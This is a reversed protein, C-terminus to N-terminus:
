TSGTVLLLSSALWAQRGVVGSGALEARGSEEEARTHRVTLLISMLGILTTTFAVMQYATVGGVSTLDFARGGLALLAPNTTVSTALQEREADTGYLDFNSSASAVTLGGLFLIWVLARVRDLRLALRLLTRTGALGSM